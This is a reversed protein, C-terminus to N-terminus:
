TWTAPRSSRITLSWGRVRPASPTLCRNCRNKKLFDLVTITLKGSTPVDARVRFAIGSVAAAAMAALVIRRNPQLLDTVGRDTTMM